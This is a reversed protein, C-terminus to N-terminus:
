VADALPDITFSLEAVAHAFPTGLCEQAVKLAADITDVDTLMPLLGVNIGAQQLRALQDVGTAPTSMPVGRILDGDPHRLALAWFGGDDAPGLWSGFRPEPGSWDDLLPQLLKPTLQPTDMGLILLPGETLSCLAALREDLSGSAQAFVEFGAADEPRPSGELVLLRRAVPLSQVARLTQSLSTQALAAATAPSLPPTLRTKVKGPLCEKAIVAVTLGPVTRGPTRTRSLQASMDQVATLTGRVTGTVKSRGLRPSYIVPLEAVRWGHAHANLLMELPYGSRRDRLALDLLARRRAVRMPGLDTLEIGTLRRLRRSLVRNALRAHLPWSGRLPRRAGLVLDAVGSRVPALLAPLQGPDLSGDCDCFAVFEATAALLGAHAAAGFGRQPERVVFAGLEAALTGSGDTSGNDVVIARFGAPLAALVGPLAAAENLCPLVVDVLVDTGPPHAHPPPQQLPHKEKM